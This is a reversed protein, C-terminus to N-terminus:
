IIRDRSGAMFHEKLRLTQEQIGVADLAHLMTKHSGIALAGINDLDFENLQKFFFFMPNHRFQSGAVALLIAGAIAIGFTVAIWIGVHFDDYRDFASIFGIVTSIGLLIYLTKQNVLPRVYVDWKAYLDKGFPGIHAAVTAGNTMQALTYEHTESGTEASLYSTYVSTTPYKKAKLAERYHDIADKSKDSAGEIMDAWGDIRLGLSNLKDAM